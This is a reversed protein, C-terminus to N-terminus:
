NIDELVVLLVSDGPSYAQCNFTDRTVVERQEVALLELKESYWRHENDIRYTRLIKHGATLGRFDITLVIDRSVQPNYNIMFASVKGERSCGRVMVDTDDCDAAIRCDGVDSLMQYLFYQPRVEENVGFMGIRHPIENWHKTM